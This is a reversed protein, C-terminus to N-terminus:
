HTLLTPSLSTRIEITNKRPYMPNEIPLGVVNNKSKCAKLLKNKNKKLQNM